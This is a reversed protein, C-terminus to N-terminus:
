MGDWPVYQFGMEKFDEVRLKTLDEAPPVERPAQFGLGAVKDAHDFDYPTRLPTAFDVGDCAAEAAGSSAAASFGSPMSTYRKGDGHPTVNIPDLKVRKRAVNKVPRSAGTERMAAERARQRSKRKNQAAHFKRKSRTNDFPPMHSTSPSDVGSSPKNANPTTPPQSEQAELRDRSASPSASTPDEAQAAQSPSEHPPDGDGSDDNDSRQAAATQREENLVAEAVREEFVFGPPAHM